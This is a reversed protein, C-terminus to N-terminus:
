NLTLHLRGTTGAQQAQVELLDCLQRVAWLGHRPPQTPSPPLYGLYWDTTTQGSDTVDCVIRGGDRWLTVRGTGGGHQVANTAVENVAFSWTTRRAASLLASRGDRVHVPDRLSASQRAKVCAAGGHVVHASRWESGRQSAAGGAAFGSWGEPPGTIRSARSM